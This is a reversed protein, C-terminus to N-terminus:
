SAPWRIEAGNLDRLVAEIDSRLKTPAVPKALFRNAGLEAARRVVEENAVASLLIFGNRALGAEQRLAKLLQLGHMIPMDYDAIVVDPHQFRALPLAEAGDRAAYIQAFGMCELVRRILQRADDDDDVILVRIDSVPIM